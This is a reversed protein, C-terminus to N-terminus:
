QHCGILYLYYTMKKCVNAVHCAWPLNSDITIGLYKQKSVNVLPTSELLIPTVVTSSKSSRVSFWMVSSKEVNVQMKSATIWGALSALDSCLSDKVQTHNDGCCILVLTTLLNCFHGMGRTYHCIM